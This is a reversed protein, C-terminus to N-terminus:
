TVCGRPTPAASSSSGPGCRLSSGTPTAETDAQIVAAEAVLLVRSPAQGAIARAVATDVVGVQDAELHRSMSAVRRALWPECGLDRVVAWTRPLRHRLDLADALVSRTSLLHTDRAVALEAVSLEQVAPTGLGGVPVLQDSGPVRHGKITVVVPEQDHLDAWHTLLRLDEVELARRGRVVREAGPFCRGRM